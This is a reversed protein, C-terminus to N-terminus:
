ELDEFISHGDGGTVRKSGQVHEKRCRAESEARKERGGELVFPSSVAHQVRLLGAARDEVM